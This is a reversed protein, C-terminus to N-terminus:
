GTRRARDAGLLAVAALLMLLALATRGSPRLTPVSEITCSEIPESSCGLFEDCSEATCPDQDGCLLDNPINSILGNGEDCSDETCSVGDDVIPATGSLCNAVVDCIEAGDCFLGNDCTAHNVEHVILDDAEDCSDDTCAVGDDLWPATGSQCGLGADCTEVGNCFLGDDCALPSGSLCVGSGDCSDSASCADLDDCISELSEFACSESCCDGGVTNGDDCDEGNEILSNGCIAPQIAAVAAGVDARPFSLGSDPNTVRPGHSTLLTRIEEPALTSDVGLLLAAQGAAYPSSASTGGFATTGGGLASTTTRYDPALMDLLEDSNSHCVFEDAATPSDTCLITTCSTNGCWSIPGVSADYVGGVSIAQAVCAPFSIGDDYGENGSATFVTVGAAHLAEIANATNTGSCPSASANSYEEGDGLSMNVLQVGEVPGGIVARETLIWDLGAAIDSFDGSGANSLVKVAVIDAEPAVGVPAVAGKSTIIGSVSTGHGDDDEASTSEGSGGPCCGGLLPSPHTDCFCHQAVLDDTLDPHNTDIGTDLVAVKVGSGTYGLVHGDDGGVLSVGQALVAYVKADLYLFEVEAHLSLADMASRQVWLAIGSLSRYRRKVQFSGHTLANLVRQQRAQIAVGRARGIEPLDDQRLAVGIAIWRSQLNTELLRSLHTGIRVSRAIPSQSQVPLKNQGAAPAVYVSCLMMTLFVWNKRRRWAGRAPAAKARTM